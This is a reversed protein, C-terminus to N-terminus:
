CTPDLQAITLGKTGRQSIMQVLQRMLTVGEISFVDGDPQNWIYFTLGSQVIYMADGSQGMSCM